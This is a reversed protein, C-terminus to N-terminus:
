ASAVPLAAQRAEVDTLVRPPRGQIGGRRNRRGGPRGATSEVGTRGPIRDNGTEVNRLYHSSAM